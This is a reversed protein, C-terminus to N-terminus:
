THRSPLFLIAGAVQHHTNEPETMIDRIHSLFDPLSLWTRWCLRRDCLYESADFCVQSPNGLLWDVVVPGLAIIKRVIAMVRTVLM